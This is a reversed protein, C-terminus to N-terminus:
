IIGEMMYAKQKLWRYDKTSEKKIPKNFIRDIKAHMKLDKEHDLLKDRISM